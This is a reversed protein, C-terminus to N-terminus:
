DFSVEMQNLDLMSHNQYDVIKREILIEEVDMEDDEV